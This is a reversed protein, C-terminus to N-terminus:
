LLFEAMVGNSVDIGRETLRWFAGDKEMLGLEEMQRLVPGYVEDMTKGFRRAFEDEPVGRVMRLGLYM